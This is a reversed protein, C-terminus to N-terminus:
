KIAIYFGIDNNNYVAIDDKYLPALSYWKGYIFNNVMLLLLLLKDNIFINVM